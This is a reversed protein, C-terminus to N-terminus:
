VKLTAVVSSAMTGWFVGQKNLTQLLSGLHEVINQPHILGFNLQESPIPRPPVACWCWFRMGAM